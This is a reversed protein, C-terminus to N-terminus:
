TRRKKQSGPNKEAQRQIEEVRKQMEEMKRQLWTKPKEPAAPVPSGRRVGGRPPPEGGPAVDVVVAGAAEAEEQRKVHDRIIKSEIIGFTTSALIYLNLGSPGGYLFVPFLLTMWQMMKQQQAQEPTMTPPKPTFKHQLYFVVALGFPLLNLGSIPIFLFSYTNDFKILHDPQSLDKIWTLNVGGFELFPAQRLEFTSQLASFLAIWIPMQLFMPLCGLIPTAGHEKYFQMMARQQEQPNDKYRTKIKELEPGFKSMKMMNVQSKKTIPHLLARVVLVLVIIALGWDRLVAHFIGLLWVLINVLWQFTCWACPGATLVLTEHYALPLSSLYETNLLSRLRPGAYFRMPLTVSAGPEVRLEGTQFETIVSRLLPNDNGPDLARGRVQAIYAPSLPSDESGAIPDPRLTANFYVSTTGAWLLPADSPGRTYDIFPKADYFAETYDYRIRVIRGSEVYGGIVTRDSGRDLEKPPVVPGVWRHAVVAPLQSVNEFRISIDIEYGGHTQLAQPRPTLKFTKFVRLAPVDGVAVDVVFTASNDAKSEVRWEVGSLDLQFPKGAISGILEGSSMPRSADPFRDYPQQFVYRADNGIEARYRNLTIADIGAGRPNLVVGAAFEPDDPTTSGITFAATRANPLVRVAQPSASEVAPGTTPDLGVPTLGSGAVPQTTAADGGRGPDNATPAPRRSMDYGLQRGVFVILPEWLLVIPISILIVLLLRRNDM